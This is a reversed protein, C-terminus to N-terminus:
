PCVAPDLLSANVPILSFQGSLTKLSAWPTVDTAVLWSRGCTKAGAPPVECAPPARQVVMAVTHTEEYGGPVDKLVGHRVGSSSVYVIRLDCADVALPRNVAFEVGNISVPTEDAYLVWELARAVDVVTADDDIELSTSRRRKEPGSLDAVLDLM